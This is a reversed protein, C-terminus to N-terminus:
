RSAAAAARWTAGAEMTSEHIKVAVGLRDDRAETRVIHGWCKLVRKGAPTDFEVKFDIAEGVNLAASTLFMVGSASVDSTLGRANGLTVALVAGVREEKRKEHQQERM